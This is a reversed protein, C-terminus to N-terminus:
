LVVVLLSPNNILRDAAEQPLAVFRPEAKFILRRNPHRADFRAKYEEGSASVILLKLWSKRPAKSALEIREPPEEGARLEAAKDALRNLRRLKAEAELEYSSKLPEQYDIGDPPTVHVCAPPLLTAEAPGSSTVAVPSTFFSPSAARLEAAVEPSAEAAKNWVKKIFPNVSPHTESVPAPLQPGLTSLRGGQKQEYSDVSQALSKKNCGACVWLNLAGGQQEAKYALPDGTNVEGFCVICSPMVPAEVSGKPLVSVLEELKPLLQGLQAAAEVFPLPPQGLAVAPSTKAEATADGCKACVYPLVVLGEAAAAAKLKDAQEKTYPLPADNPLLYVRPPTGMNICGLTKQQESQTLLQAVLAKILTPPTVRYRTALKFLDSKESPAMRMPYIPDREKSPHTAQATSM